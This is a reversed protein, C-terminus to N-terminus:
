SRPLITMHTEKFHSTIWWVAISILAAFYCWISILHTAFHLKAVIFSTLIMIGLLFMRKRSSVFLPTVTAIFYFVHTVWVPLLPFDLTYKIHGSYIEANVDYTLLCYSLYLSVAIGMAMIGKIIKKRVVDKEIMLVSWPVWIPWVVQALILFIYISIQNLPDARSNGIGMWLVGEAFQQVAFLFPIAAFPTQEPSEAKKLSAVGVVALVGSAVFSAEASFCM